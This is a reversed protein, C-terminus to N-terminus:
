VCAFACSRRAARRECSATSARSQTCDSLTLQMPPRPWSNATRMEARMCARLGWPRSPARAKCCANAPLLRLGRAQCPPHVKGRSGLPAAPPCVTNRPTWHLWPWPALGPCRPSFNTGGSQGPSVQVERIEWPTQFGLGAQSSQLEFPAGPPDLTAALQRPQRRARRGRRGQPGHGQRSRGLSPPATLPVQSASSLVDVPPRM